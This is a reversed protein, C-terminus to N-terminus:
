VLCIGVLVEQQQQKMALNQRISQSRMSKLWGPDETWPIEWALISSYTAMGKELCDEQVLYQVQTEQKAPLNKVVSGSWFYGVLRQEMFLSIILYGNHIHLYEHMFCKICVQLAYIVLVNVKFFIEITWLEWFLIYCLHVEVNLHEFSLTRVSSLM